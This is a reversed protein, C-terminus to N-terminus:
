PLVRALAAFVQDLTLRPGSALASLVPELAARAREIAEPRSTRLPWLRTSEYGPEAAARLVDSPCRGLSLLIRPAPAPTWFWSPVAARPGLLRDALSLWAAAAVRDHAPCDLVTGPTTGQPDDHGRAAIAFTHLAYGHAATSLPGFCHEFFAAAETQRLLESAEAAGRELAGPDVAPLEALRADLAELALTPSAELLGEAAEFFAEACPILAAGKGAVSRMPLVTFVALPFERGVRDRSPALAGALVSGSAPSAFAFRVNASPLKAKALLLTEAARVLWQDFEASAASAAGRRVFDAAFPLKGVLSAMARGSGM